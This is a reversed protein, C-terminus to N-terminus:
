LINIKIYKYNTFTKFYKKSVAQLQRLRPTCLLLLIGMIKMATYGNCM